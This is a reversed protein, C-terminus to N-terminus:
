QRRRHGSCLVSRRVARVLRPFGSHPLDPQRELLNLCFPVGDRHPSPGRCLREVYLGIVFRTATKASQHARGRPAAMQPLWAERQPYGIESTPDAITLGLNNIVNSTGRSVPRDSPHDAASSRRSDRTTASSAGIGALPHRVRPHQDALEISEVSVPGTGNGISRMRVETATTPIANSISVPFTM